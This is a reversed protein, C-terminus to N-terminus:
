RGNWHRPATGNWDWHLSATASGNMEWGYNLTRGFAHAVTIADEIRDLHGDVSIHGARQAFDHTFGVSVAGHAEGTPHKKGATSATSDARATSPAYAVRFPEITLTDRHRGGAIAGIRLPASIGPVRAEGGESSFAADQLQVPWGRLTMAGTFY